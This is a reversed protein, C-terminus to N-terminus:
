RDTLCSIFCVELIITFGGCVISGYISTSPLLKLWAEIAPAATHFNRLACKRISKRGDGKYENRAIEVEKLVDEWTHSRELDVQGKFKPDAEDQYQKLAELFTQKSSILAQEDFSTDSQKLFIDFEEDYNINSSGFAPHLKETVHNDTYDVSTNILHREPPPEERLSCSDPDSQSSETM